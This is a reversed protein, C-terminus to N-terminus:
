DSEPSEGPPLLSVGVFTLCVMSCMIAATSLLNAVDHMPSTDRSAPLAFLLVAIAASAAARRSWIWVM